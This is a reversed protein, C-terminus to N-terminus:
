RGKPLDSATAAPHPHKQLFCHSQVAREPGSLGVRGSPSYLAFVVLVAQVFVNEVGWGTEGVLSGGADGTM